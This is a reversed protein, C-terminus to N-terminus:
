DMVMRAAAEEGDIVMKGLGRGGKKRGDNREVRWHAGLGWSAGRGSGTAMSPKREVTSCRGRASLLVEWSSLSRSDLSLSPM